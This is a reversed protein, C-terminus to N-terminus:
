EKKEQIKVVLNIQRTDTNYPIHEEVITYVNMLVKSIEKNLEDNFANLHKDKLRATSELLRESILENIADTFSDAKM